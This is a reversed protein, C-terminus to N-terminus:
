DPKWRHAILRYSAGGFLVAPVWVVAGLTFSIGISLLISQADVAEGAFWAIIPVAAVPYTVVTAIGAGLFALVLDWASGQRPLFWEALTAGITAPLATGVAILSLADGVPM